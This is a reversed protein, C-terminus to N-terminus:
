EYNTEKKKETKNQKTKKQKLSGDTPDITSMIIESRLVCRISEGYGQGAYDVDKKNEEQDDQQFAKIFLMRM